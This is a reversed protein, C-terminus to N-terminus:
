FGHQELYDITLGNKQQILKEIYKALIDNEINVRDGIRRDRLTTANLTHPIVSVGFAGNNVFTVTLSIGDVTVSGKEVIYRELKHDVSVSLLINEDLKRISTILGIGDVHGQVIHGGLRDSLRLARELNVSTGRNMMDLTTRNLTEAVAQVTFEKNGTSTVTLCAGSVAVSDGIAMDETVKGAMIIFETLKGHRNIKAIQGIEEILGTFM